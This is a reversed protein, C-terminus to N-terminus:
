RERGDPQGPHSKPLKAVVRAGSWLELDQGDLQREAWEIAQDDADHLAEAAGVIHGADDMFYLRYGLM